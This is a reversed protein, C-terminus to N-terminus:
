WGLHNFTSTIIAGYSLSFFYFCNLIHLRGADERAVKVGYLDTHYGYNWTRTIRLSYPVEPCFCPTKESWARTHNGFECSKAISISDGSRLVLSSCHEM